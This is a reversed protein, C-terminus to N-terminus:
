ESTAIKGIVADKRGSGATTGFYYSLVLGFATGLNGLMMMVTGGGADMVVGFHMVYWLTVGFMATVGGALARPTWSDHADVERRRASDKDAIELKFVDVGLEKMRIAFDHDEKKLALLADPSATALAAAVDAESGDPKGLVASSIAQVALGAMPGGLATGITPAVARVISKWDFSAM